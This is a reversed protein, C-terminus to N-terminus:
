KDTETVQPQESMKSSEKAEVKEVFENMRKVIEELKQCDDGYIEDETICENRSIHICSNLVHGIDEVDNECLRCSAVKYKYKRTGRLDVIKSRIKFILRASNPSMVRMYNKLELKTIPPFSSTIKGNKGGENLDQVAVACVHKNVKEKWALKDTKKIEEEDQGLDYKQLLM